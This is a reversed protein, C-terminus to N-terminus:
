IWGGKAGGNSDDLWNARGGEPRWVPDGGRTGTREFDFVLRASDDPWQSRKKLDGIAAV